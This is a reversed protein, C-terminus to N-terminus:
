GQEAREGGRAPVSRRGLVALRRHGAGPEHRELYFDLWALFVAPGVCWLLVPVGTALAIWSPAWCLCPRQARRAVVDTCLAAVFDVWGAAVVLELAESALARVPRRRLVARAGFVIVWFAWTAGIVAFAVGTPLGGDYSEHGVALLLARLTPLEFAQMLAGILGHVTLAFLLGTVPAALVVFLAIRVRPERPPAGARSLPLRGAGLVFLLQLVLFGAVLAATGADAGGWPGRFRSGGDAHHGTFLHVANPVEDPSWYLAVAVAAAFLLAYVTTFAARARNRRRRSSRVIEAPSVRALTVSDGALDRRGLLV